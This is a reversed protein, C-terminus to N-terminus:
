WFLLRLHSGNSQSYKIRRDLSFGLSKKTFKLKKKQLVRKGKIYCAREKGLSKIKIIVLKQRMKQPPKGGLM